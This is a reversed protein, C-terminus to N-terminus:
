IMGLEVLRKYIYKGIVIRGTENFHTLDNPERLSEPIRGEKTDKLDQETPEIGADDLGYKCIYERLNVFRLGFENLMRKDLAKRIETTGTTLGIVLYNKTNLHNIMAGHIGILDDVDVEYGDNAGAWIITIDNKYERSGYTELITPRTIKIIDGETTRTFTYQKTGYDYSLIGEIGNIYCPNIGGNRSGVSYLGAPHFPMLPDVRIGDWSKQEVVVSGTKPITCPEIMMPYGGQRGAITRMSEGGVGLNVVELESLKAITSPFTAIEVHRSGMTLSDGWCIIRKPTQVNNTALTLTLVLMSVIINM